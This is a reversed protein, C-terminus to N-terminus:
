RRGVMIIVMIITPLRHYRRDHCIVSLSSAFYQAALTFDGICWRVKRDRRYGEINERAGERYEEVTGLQISWQGRYCIMVTIDLIWRYKYM